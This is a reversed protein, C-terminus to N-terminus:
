AALRPVYRCAHPPLERNLDELMGDFDEEYLNAAGGQAELGAADMVSLDDFSFELRSIDSIDDTEDVLHALPDDSTLDSAQSNASSRVSSTDDFDLSYSSAGDLHGFESSM